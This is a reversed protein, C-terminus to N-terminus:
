KFWSVQRPRQPYQEGADSEWQLDQVDPGEWAAQYSCHSHVLTDLLLLGAQSQHQVEVEFLLLAINALHVDVSDNIVALLSVHARRYEWYELTTYNTITLRIHFITFGTLVVMFIFSLFYTVSCLYLVFLNTSTDDLLKGWVEWYTSTVVISSLMCYFITNFFYKYNNYGICNNLWPCHHDMMLICTNCISCHHCRDPKSRLWRICIRQSGDNKKEHTKRFMPFLSNDDKDNNKNQREGEDTLLSDRESKHEEVESVPEEEKIEEVALEPDQKKSKASSIEEEKTSLKNNLAQRKM